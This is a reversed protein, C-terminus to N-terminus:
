FNLGGDRASDALSKVRGHYLYGNRDFACKKVGKEIAKKAILAGVLSAKQIKTVKEKSISKDLSSVSCITIGQVDDIVSAYIEKNSRFVTLRPADKTGSVISRIRKKIKIRRKEKSISM